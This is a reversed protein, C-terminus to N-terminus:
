RRMANLESYCIRVGLLREEIFKGALINYTRKGWMRPWVWPYVDSIGFEVMRCMIQAMWGGVM